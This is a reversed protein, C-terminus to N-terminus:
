HAPATAWWPGSLNLSELLRRRERHPLRMTDQGDLELADFVVYTAPIGRHGHPIRRCVTAFDPLGDEYCAVLEGDFVGEISLQALQPVLHTMDWGRRSRVRLEGNLGVIARIGDWKLEFAYKDPRM